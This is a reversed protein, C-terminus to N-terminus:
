HGRLPVNSVGVTRSIGSKRPGSRFPPHLVAVEPDWGAIIRVRILRQPVGFTNSWQLFSRTIKKITLMNNRRNNAQDKMIAWRVNGPVYGKSNDIRDVTHKKSPKRGMYRLFSIYSSKWEDCVDIGRSLYVRAKEPETSRCRHLMSKWSRYETTTRSSEGHVPPRGNM